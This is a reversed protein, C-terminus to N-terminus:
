ITLQNKNGRLLCYHGTPRKNQGACLALCNWKEANLNNNADKNLWKIYETVCQFCWREFAKWLWISDKIVKVPKLNQFDQDGFAESVEKEEERRHSVLASLQFGQDSVSQENLLRSWQFGQVFNNQFGQDCFQKKLNQFGQDSLHKRNSAKIKRKM